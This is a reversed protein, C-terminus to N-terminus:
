SEPKTDLWAYSFPSYTHGLAPCPRHKGWPHVNIYPLDCLMMPLQPWLDERGLDKYRWARVSSLKAVVHAFLINIIIDKELELNHVFLFVKHRQSHSEWHSNSFSHWYRKMSKRFIHKVEIVSEGEKICGSTTCIFQSDSSILSGLSSFCLTMLSFLPFLDETKLFLSFSNIRPAIM